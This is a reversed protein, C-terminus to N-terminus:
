ACAGFTDFFNLFDLIDVVGDPNYQDPNFAGCPAPQGDCAGYDDLFDLFDLIDAGGDGNYDAPGCPDDITGSLVFARGDGLNFYMHAGRMWYFTSGAGEGQAWGWSGSFVPTRGVISVFYRTDAEFTLPTVLDVTFKYLSGGASVVSPTLYIEESIPESDAYFIDPQSAVTHPDQNYFNVEFGLPPLAQGWWEVRTVTAPSTLRFSAWAISDNDSDDHDAPDIWLQSNRLVGGGPKMTQTFVPVQALAFSAAVSVAILAGLRTLHRSAAM